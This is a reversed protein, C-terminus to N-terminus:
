PPQLFKVKEEFRGIGPHEYWHVEARRGRVMIVPTSKKAWARVRGGYERVLRGVDRIGRGRAIVRSQSLLRQDLEM